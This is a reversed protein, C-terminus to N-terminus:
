HHRPLRRPGQMHVVRIVMQSVNGLKDTVIIKIKHPGLKISKAAQWALSGSFRVPFGKSVFHVHSRRSLQITIERVGNSPSSAAVAIRLPGSYRQGPTPRLIRIVPAAFNGCPGSMQDGHLSEQQFAAFAPKPSYDHNLLGFNNLPATSTGNNFLEFWMAVKVYSYQPQAVCHYAQRLYTAQTPQTVGALKQGAWHGTQCEAGTSSWGLETAYIPKTGDGAGVMVAHVATFGLFFYQNITHTGRNYEFLYPSAINCATDTHIGVADFSGRAGAAYLQSLFPGDNGTMGGVIVTAKPDASKIAPYAAKLLAAYQAPTGNWWGSNDEENWIEWGAVRGHFANALYNVFAGYDAPNVPPTRLDPSGGAAWAPTGQVDVDVKTTAPLSAFFHQYSQIEAVNYVGKQPEIANWGIFVRVWAPRSAHIAARVKPSNFYNGSTAAINVGVETASAVQTSASAGAALALAALPGLLCYARLRMAVADAVGRRVVL